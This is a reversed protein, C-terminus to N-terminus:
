SLVEPLCVTLLVLYSVNRCAQTSKKLPVWCLLSCFFGLICFMTRASTEAGMWDIWCHQKNVDWLHFLTQINLRWVHDTKQVVTFGFHTLSEEVVLRDFLGKRTSNPQNADSFCSCSRSLHCNFFSTLPCLTKLQYIMLHLNQPNVLRLRRHDLKRCVQFSLKLPSAATIEQRYYLASQAGLDVHRWKLDFFHLKKLFFLM